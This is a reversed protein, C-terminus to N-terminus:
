KSFSQAFGFGIREQRNSKGAPKPRKVQVFEIGTVNLRFSRNPKGTLLTAAEGAKLFLLSCSQNGGICRGDGRVLAVEPSVDFGARRGDESVGVFVIVPHRKPLVKGAPVTKYTNLKGSGAIGFRIDPRFAYFRLGPKSPDLEGSGTKGGSGGDGGSPSGGTSPPSSSPPSGSGGGSDGTTDTVSVPKKAGGGTPGVSKLQAKQPVSTYKQKFPDAPSRRKLRKKYDRLGPTAEVVTLTAPELGTAAEEAAIEDAVPPPLEEESGGLLFPVAAIAVVVLAILPLLRRERLDFYLDALWAPADLDKLGKLDPMKLEPGLRKM